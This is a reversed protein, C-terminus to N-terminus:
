KRPVSRYGQHGVRFAKACCTYPMKHVPPLFTWWITPLQRRRPRQDLRLGLTLYFHLMDSSLRVSVQEQWCDIVAELVETSHARFLHELVRRSRNRARTYILALSEERSGWHGGQSVVLRDWM